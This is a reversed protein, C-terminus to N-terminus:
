QSCHGPGTLGNNYSDLATAWTNVQGQQAKTLSSWSSIAHNALFTNAASITSSVASSDAGTQIDLLAALLQGQLKAIGNSAQGSFNLINQAQAVTLTNLAPQGSWVIAPLQALYKALQTPHTKWYGITLTCGQTPVNVEVNWSSSNGNGPTDSGAVTATNPFEYVGTQSFPGFTRTYTFSQPSTSATLPSPLNAGAYTDSLSATGDVTTTPDGFQYDASGTYDKTLGSNPLQNTATATNTGSSKDNVPASYKVVIQGNAPVTVPDALPNNQEDTFVAGPLSDSLHVTAAMPAPNSVTIEGSVTFNSDSPTSTATVTYTVTPSTEGIALTLKSQDASKDVRWAWARTYQANATKTVTLDFCNVQVDASASALNAGGDGYVTATNSNDGKNAPCSFTHDYVPFTTTDSITGLDSPGTGNLSDKVDVSDNLHNVQLPAWQDSSVKVGAGDTQSGSHNDITAVFQVRYTNSANYNPIPSVDYEYDGVNGPGPSAQLVAPGSATVDQPGSITQFTTGVKQELFATVKLNVTPVAGGNTVEGIAKLYVPGPQGPTKTATVTYHATGTDGNFLNLTGPSADKTISWANNQDQFIGATATVALTTGSQGTDAQAVAAGASVLGFGSLLTAIGLALVRYHQKMGM